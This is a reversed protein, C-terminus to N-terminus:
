STCCLHSSQRDQSVVARLTMKSITCNLHLKIYVAGLTYSFHVYMSRVMRPSLRAVYNNWLATQHLSCGFHVYLACGYNNWLATKICVAGLTCMFHVYMTAGFNFFHTCNSTFQVSFACLICLWLTCNLHVKFYSACLLCMFPVYFACSTVAYSYWSVLM